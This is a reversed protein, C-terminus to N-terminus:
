QAFRLWLIKRKLTTITKKIVGGGGYMTTKVRVITRPMGKYDPNILPPLSALNGVSANYIGNEEAINQHPCLHYGYEDIWEAM